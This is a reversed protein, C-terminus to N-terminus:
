TDGGVSLHTGTTPAEHPASDLDGVVLHPAADLDDADMMSAIRQLSALLMHQEWDSLRALARRFRDQLLSPARDLLAVGGSTLRLEVRRRDDTSPERCVLGRQELRALIGTVTGPSLHIRRAVEGASTRGVRHIEQMAALQPATLGHEDGLRRSHIDVARIIRRLAQVVARERDDAASPVDDSVISRM